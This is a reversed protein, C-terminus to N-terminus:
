REKRQGQKCHTNGEGKRAGKLIKKKKVPKWCNSWSMYQHLKKINSIFINLIFININLIFIDFVSQLQQVQPNIIQMWNSFIRPIRWTDKEVEGWSGGGGRSYWNCTYQVVQYQEVIWKYNRKEASEEQAKNQFIEITTDRFEYDKRRCYRITCLTNKTKPMTTKLELLKIWTKAVDKM